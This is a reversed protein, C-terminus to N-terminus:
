PKKRTPLLAEVDKVVAAHLARIDDGLDAVDFAKLHEAVIKLQALSAAGRVKDGNSACATIEDVLGRAYNLPNMNLGM